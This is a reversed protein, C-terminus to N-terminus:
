SLGYKELYDNTKNCNKNHKLFTLKKHWANLKIETLRWVEEVFYIMVIGFLVQSM